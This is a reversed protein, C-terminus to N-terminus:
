NMFDWVGVNHETHGHKKDIIHEPFAFGIGFLGPGIVGSKTNYNKLNIESKFPIRKPDFGIAYVM